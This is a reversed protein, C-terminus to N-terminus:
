LLQLLSFLENYSNIKTIIEMCQKHLPLKFFFFLLQVFFEINNVLNYIKFLYSINSIKQIPLYITYIKIHKEFINFYV